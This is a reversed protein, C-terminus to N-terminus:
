GCPWPELAKQQIFQVPAALVRCVDFWRYYPLLSIILVPTELFCIMGFKGFFSCKKDGSVCVYTRTRILPYSINTKRFIQQAKNEQNDGKQRIVSTVGLQRKPNERTSFM